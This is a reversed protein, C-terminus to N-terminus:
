LVKEVCALVPDGAVVSGGAYLLLQVVEDDVECDDADEIDCSWWSSPSSCNGDYVHVVCKSPKRSM